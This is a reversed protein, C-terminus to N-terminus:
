PNFIGAPYLPGEAIDIHVWTKTGWEIRPVGLELAAHILDKRFGSSTCVIDAALGIMHASRKAGGIRANHAPCRAGSSITLPTEVAARLADLLKKLKEDVDM